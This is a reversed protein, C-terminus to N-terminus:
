LAIKGKQSVMKNLHADQQLNEKVEMSRVSRNFENSTFEGGRDTRLIKFSHGSQNETLTQIAYLPFFAKSKKKQFYVWMIHSYDNVFLIFYRKEGLSLNKTPGLINAHVLELPAKARWSITPFLLRNYRAMHVAKVYKEKM